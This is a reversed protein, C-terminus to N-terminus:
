LEIGVQPLLQLLEYRVVRSVQLPVDLPLVEADVGLLQAYHKRVLSDVVEEAHVVDGPLVGQAYMQLAELLLKRVLVVEERPCPQIWAFVAVNLFIVQVLQRSPFLEYVVASHSFLLGVIFRGHDENCLRLSSALSSANEYRLIELDQLRLDLSRLCFCLFLELFIDSLFLM